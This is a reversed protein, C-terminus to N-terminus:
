SQSHSYQWAKTSAVQNFTFVHLGVVGLDSLHPSLPVLLDDPNYGTSTMLRTVATRNKRLYRLSSGIGLRLGMTLLKSRDVVGSIGLHVPLDLGAARESELWQVILKPDFCMQTSCYGKLGASALLQQKDHLAEHLLDDSILPHGHPYATVGITDLGHDCELLDRLFSPADFYAGPTEADGGVLFMTTVGATHMWSALKATDSRETVLRASVHPIAFHGAEMVQETIRCTAEQGKVPSATVSVRSGKPLAALAADLSKLPIVEFILDSVLKSRYRRQAETETEAGRKKPKLM